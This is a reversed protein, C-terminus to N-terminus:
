PLGGQMAVTFRGIAGDAADGGGAQADEPVVIRDRVAAAESEAHFATARAHDVGPVAEIAAYVDSLVLDAGLARREFAFFAPAGDDLAGNGFVKLVSAQTGAQSFNPLVSVTLALRIPWARHSRIRLALPEASRAVLYALLSERQAPALPQGAVAAVTVMLLRQAGAGQGQAAWDARAAAVGAFAMALEAHDQVTVARDLTRVRTAVRARAQQLTDRDAGGSTPLPNFCREVFDLPAVMKTLAQSRLNGSKGAGVRYRAVINDRGSPPLAGQHGNGFVVFGHQREDVELLYHADLSTSQALTPVRQWRQGGVWVELAPAVGEPEAADPVFALPSRQLALRQPTAAPNGSGIVEDPAGAGQGVEVVNGHVLLDALWFRQALPREISVRQFGARGVVPQVQAIRAAEASFGDALLLLLGPVLGAPAGDIDLQSAGAELWRESRDHGQVKMRREFVAHLLLTAVHLTGPAAGHLVVVSRQAIQGVAAVTMAMTQLGDDLAVASGAALGDVSRELELVTDGDHFAGGLEALLLPRLGSRRSGAARPAVAHYRIRVETDFATAAPRLARTIPETLFIKDYHVSAITALLVGAADEILLLDGAAPNHDYSGRHSRAYRPLEISGARVPSGTGGSELAQLVLTQSRRLSAPAARSLTIDHGSKALVRAGFLLGGSAVLVVDGASIFGANVLPLESDGLTIQDAREGAAVRVSQAPRGLITLGAIPVDVDVASAGPAWRLRTVGGSTDAAALTLASRSAFAEFVLPTGAKLGGYEADALLEVEQEAGVANRLRLRRQSRNFGLLRMANRSAHLSLAALTEFVLERKDAGTFSLKFGAPMEGSAGPKTIFVQPTGASVGPSLRVDVLAALDMLARPSTATRLFNDNARQDAHAGLNAALQAFLDTFLLAFDRGEAGAMGADDDALAANWAPLLEPLRARLRSRWTALEDASFDIRSLGGRNGASIPLSHFDM